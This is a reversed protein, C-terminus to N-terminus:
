DENSDGIKYIPCRRKNKLLTKRWEKMKDGNWVDLVSPYDLISVGDKWLETNEGFSCMFIEARHNIYLSFLGSECPEAFTALEDRDKRNKIANLYLPASCSDFGFRIEQQECYEILKNYSKQTIPTLAGSGVRDKFSLMVLANMKSLRSDSKMDQIVEKIFPITDESLVIHINVQSMGCNQSLAKITDYAEEKNKNNVSVAVAGCLKSLQICNFLSINHANITLNPIIGRNRTEELIEWIEPHSNLDCVGFAIQVISRPMKDMIQKFTELSMHVTKDGINQKYCFNRCGRGSCGGETVLMNETKLKIDEPTASSIEIDAIEPGFPSYEPDDDKSKGWRAFFGTEKDFVYNYYPSRLIKKKKNELIQM